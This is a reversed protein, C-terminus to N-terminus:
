GHEGYQEGLEHLWRQLEPHQWARTMLEGFSRWETASLEIGLELRKAWWSRAGSSPVPVVRFHRGIWPRDPPGDVMARCEVLEPYSQVMVVFSRPPGFQISTAFAPAGLPTFSVTLAGATLPSPLASEHILTPASTGSPVPRQHRIWHGRAALRWLTPWYPALCQDLDTSSVGEERVARAFCRGVHSPAHWREATRLRDRVRAIHTILAHHRQDADTNSLHINSGLGDLNKFYSSVNLSAPVRRQQYVAEFADLLTLYSERSPVAPWMVPPVQREEEDAVQVYEAMVDWEAAALRQDAEWRTRIRSLAATPQQLLEYRTADRDLDGARDDLALFAAESLSVPRGLRETFVKQMRELLQAREETLRVSIVEHRPEKRTRRFAKM